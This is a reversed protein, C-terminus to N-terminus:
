KTNKVGKKRRLETTDLQKKKYNSDQRMAVVGMRARSLRLDLTM